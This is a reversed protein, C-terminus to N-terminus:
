AVGGIVQRVWVVSAGTASAIQHDTQGTAARYKIDAIQRARPLLQFARAPDAAAGALLAMADLGLPGGIRTM